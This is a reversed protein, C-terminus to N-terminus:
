AINNQWATLGLCLWGFILAGGGIPAVAGMFSVDFISLIYLSGSFLVIGLTFFVAAAKTLGGPWRRIASSIFLMALTHILQYQVATEYTSRRGNATLIGNLAHAGFAGMGVGIMGFLAALIVVRRGMHM